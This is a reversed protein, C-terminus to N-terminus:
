VVKEKSNFIAWRRIVLTRGTGRGGTDGAECGAADIRDYQVGALMTVGHRALTARHV